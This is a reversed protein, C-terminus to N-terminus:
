YVVFQLELEEAERPFSPLPKPNWAWKAWVLNKGQLKAIPSDNM